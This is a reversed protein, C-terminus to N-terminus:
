ENSPNDGLNKKLVIPWKSQGMVLFFEFKPYGRWEMVCSRMPQMYIKNKFNVVM